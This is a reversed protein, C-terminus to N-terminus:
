KFYDRLKLGFRIQPMHWALAFEATKTSSAEVTMTICVCSASHLTGTRPEDSDNQNLLGDDTLDLWVDRGETESDTKFNTRTTIM